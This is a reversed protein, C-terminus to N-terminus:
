NAELTTEPGVKWDVITAQFDAGVQLVIEIVWPEKVDTVHFGDMDSTIDYQYAVETDKNFRVNLALKQPADGNIGLLNRSSSYFGEDDKITQQYFARTEKIAPHRPEGDVPPFGHNIHRSLAIGEVASNVGTIQQAMNGLLKVRVSLPRTQQIVPVKINSDIPKDARIDLDLLGGTFSGPDTCDGNEDEMVSVNEGQIAVKEKDYPTNGIIRYKGEDLNINSNGGGITITEETGDPKIITITTGEDADTNVPFEVSVNYDGPCDEGIFGDKICSAAFLLFVLPSIKLLIKNM